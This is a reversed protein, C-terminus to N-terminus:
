TRTSSARPAAPDLLELDGKQRTSARTTTACCTTPSSRTTWTGPPASRCGRRARPSRSRRRRRPRRPRSPPTARGALQETGGARTRFRAIGQQAVGNVRPFEGGFVVWQGDPSADVAWGAQGASTYAGFAFNPYWHLLAAYAIGLCGTAHRGLRLRREQDPTAPPTRTRRGRRRGACARTPTPGATSPPATTSTRRTTSCREPRRSTTPTVSATTRVWNIQGSMPDVAFTGEYDAREAGFAYSTGYVQTADAKISTIAGNAGAARIKEQAPWPNVSGDSAMLSGMGYAPQGSLTTFSGAPIVRTLDPSMTMAWVYGGAAAPAWATM